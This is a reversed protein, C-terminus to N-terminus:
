GIECITGGVNMFLRGEYVTGEINMYAKVAQRITGDDNVYVPINNKIWIAYLTVAENTEYYSGAAYSTGTGDAATNWASFTYGTRTFTCGPVTLRSGYTKTEAAQSGGDAGNGNFTVAYTDPAWQAYLTAAANATYSGGAAYSTGSGNAATNWNVFHYGTPATFGNSRLTLNVGYTKTQSATTGSGGNANYTIAFTNPSWIAYLTLNSNTSYSQGASYGSGSGDAATNWGAFTHGSKTWGCSYLNVAYGWTKSQSATSQAGNNSHYTITYVPTLYASGKATGSAYTAHDFPSSSASGGGTSVGYSSGENLTGTWYATVSRGWGYAKTSDGVKFGVWGPPYFTGYEGESSTMRFRIAVNNKDLRAIYVDTSVSVNNEKRGGTTVKKWSSGSPLTPASQTWGAM